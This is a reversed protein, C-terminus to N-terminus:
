SELFETVYKRYHLPMRNKQLNENKREEIAIAHFFTKWLDAYDEETESFRELRNAEEETLKRIEIQTEITGKIDAKGKSGADDSVPNEVIHFGAEGHAKDYIIFWEGSFRDSFHEMVMPLVHHEPEFVALMVRPKRYVQKFRLFERSYHAENGVARQLEFVRKAPPFQLMDCIKDGISFGYTLFQYLADGRDSASAAVAYMMYRYARQSIKERVTQVVKEAKFVDTQVSIYESFLTINEAEGEIQPEIRIYRHGYGSLGAEYIATLIGDPTDECRYIRIPKEGENRDASM